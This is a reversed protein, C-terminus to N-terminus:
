ETLVVSPDTRAAHRAPVLCAVLAVAGLLTAVSAIVRPDLAGVEFLQTELVRRLLVAGGLGLLAGAGVIAGGERLV